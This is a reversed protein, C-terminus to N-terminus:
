IYCYIKYNFYCSNEIRSVEKKNIILSAKYLFDEKYGNRLQLVIEGKSKSIRTVQYEINNRFGVSTIVFYNNNNGMRMNIRVIDGVKFKANTKVYEEIDSVLESKYKNLKENSEVLNM